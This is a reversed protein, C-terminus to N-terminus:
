CLGMVQGFSNIVCAADWKGLVSVNMILFFLLIFDAHLKANAKPRKM